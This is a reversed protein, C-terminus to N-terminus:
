KGYKKLMYILKEPRHEIKCVLWDQWTKGGRSTDIYNIVLFNGAKYEGYSLNPKYSDVFREFEEKTTETFDM